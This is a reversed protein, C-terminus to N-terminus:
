INTLPTSESTSFPSDFVDAQYASILQALINSIISLVISQLVTDLLAM